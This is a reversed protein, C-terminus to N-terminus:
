AKMKKSIQSILDKSDGEKIIAVASTGVNLGAAAGLEEKSPVKVCPVNKESCLPELHMVVEIPNVDAAYLVLKAIGREVAKTSENTGKRVKGTKKAIEVAEYAKDVMDKNVEAM